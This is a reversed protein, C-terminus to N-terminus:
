SLTPQSPRPIVALTAAERITGKAEAGQSCRSCQFRHPRHPGHRRHRRSPAFPPRSQLSRSEFPHTQLPGSQSPSFPPPLLSSLPPLLPLSNSCESNSCKRIAERPEPCQSHSLTCKSPTCSLPPRSASNGGRPSEGEIRHASASPPFSESGFPELEFSDLELAPFRCGSNSGESGAAEPETCQSDSLVRRSLAVQVLATRFPGGSQLSIATGIVLGWGWGGTKPGGQGGEVERRRAKLEGRAGRPEGEGEETQRNGEREGGAGM